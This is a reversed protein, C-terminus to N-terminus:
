KRFLRPLDKFGVATTGVRPRDLGDEIRALWDVDHPEPALDTPERPGPGFIVALLEELAAIRESPYVGGCRRCAAADIPFGVLYDPDDTGDWVAPVACECLPVNNCKM